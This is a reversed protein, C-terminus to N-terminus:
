CEDVVIDPDLKLLTTGKKSRAQAPLKLNKNLDIEANFSFRAGGFGKGAPITAAQGPKRPAGGWRKGSPFKWAIRLEPAKTSFPVDGLEFEISDGPRVVLSDIGVAKAAGKGSKSRRSAKFSLTGTLTRKTTPSDVKRANVRIVYSDPKPNAM